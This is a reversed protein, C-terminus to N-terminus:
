YKDAVKKALIYIRESLFISIYIYLFGNSLVESDKRVSSAVSLFFGMSSLIM